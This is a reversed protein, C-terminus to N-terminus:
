RGGLMIMSPCLLELCHIARFASLLRVKRKDMYDIDVWMVELPIKAQSYNYVVEAV